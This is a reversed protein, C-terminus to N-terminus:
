DHSVNLASEIGSCRWTREMEDRCQMATTEVIVKCAAETVGSGIPLHHSVVDPYNM